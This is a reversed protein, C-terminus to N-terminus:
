DGEHTYMKSTNISIHKEDVYKLAEDKAEWISYFKTREINRAMNSQLYYHTGGMWKAISIFEEIDPFRYNDTQIEKLIKIDDTLEKRNADSAWLLTKGNNLDRIVNNTLSSIILYPNHIGSDRIKGEAFQTLQRVYISGLRGKLWEIIEVLGDINELSTKLYWKTKYNPVEAYVFHFSMVESENHM